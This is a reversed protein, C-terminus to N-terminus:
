SHDAAIVSDYDYPVLFPDFGKWRDDAVDSKPRRYVIGGLMKMRADLPETTPESIDAVVAHQGQQLVAGSEDVGQELTTAQSADVGVGLVAGAGAGIAAGRTAGAVAGAPGALLGLLAGALLGVAGGIPFKGDATEVVVDNHADRLVVGAGHVTLEGENDLRWLEHLAEYATAHNAFVIATINRM